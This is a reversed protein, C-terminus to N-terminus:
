ADVAYGLGKEHYTKQIADYLLFKARGWESIVTSVLVTIAVIHGTICIFDSECDYGCDELAIVIEHALADCDFLASRPRAESFMYVIRGYASAKGVDQKTEEFVFIRAQGNATAM